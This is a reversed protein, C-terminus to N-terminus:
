PKNRANLFFVVRRDKLPNTVLPRVELAYAGDRGGNPYLSSANEVDRNFGLSVAYWTNESKFACVHFGTHGGTGSLAVEPKKSLNKYSREASILGSAAQTHDPLPCTILSAHVPAHFESEKWEPLTNQKWAQDIVPALKNKFFFGEEEQFLLAQHSTDFAKECGIVYAIFSSCDFPGLPKVEPYRTEDRQGGFAYGNHFVFLGLPTKADSFFFPSAKLGEMAFDDPLPTIYVFPSTDTGGIYPCDDVKKYGELVALTHWLLLKLALGRGSAYIHEKDGFFNYLPAKYAYGEPVGGKLLTDFDTRTWGLAIEIGQVMRHTKIQETTGLERVEYPDLREKLRQLFAKTDQLRQRVKTYLQRDHPAYGVLAHHMKQLCAAEARRRVVGQQNLQKLFSNQNLAEIVRERGEPSLVYNIAGPTVLSMEKKDWYCVALIYFGVVVATLLCARLM